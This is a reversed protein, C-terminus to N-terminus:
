YGNKANANSKEGKKLVLSLAPLANAFVIFAAVGWGGIFQQLATFKHDLAVTLIILVSNIALSIVGGNSFGTAKEVCYRCLQM